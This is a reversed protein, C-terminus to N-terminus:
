ADKTKHVPSPARSASLDNHGDPLSSAELMMLVQRGQLMGEPDEEPFGLRQQVAHHISQKDRVRQIDLSVRSANRGNSMHGKGAISSTYQTQICLSCYPYVRGSPCRQSKSNTAVERGDAPWAAM